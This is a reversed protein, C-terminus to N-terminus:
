GPLGVSFLFRLTFDPWPLLLYIFLVFMFCLSCYILSLKIIVVESYFRDEKEVNKKLCMHDSISAFTQMCSCCLGEGKHMVSQNQVLRKKKECVLLLPRLSPRDGVHFVFYHM